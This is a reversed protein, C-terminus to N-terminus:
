GAITWEDHGEDYEVVHAGVRYRANEVIIEDVHADAVSWHDGNSQNMAAVLGDIGREATFPAVRPNRPLVPYGAGRENVADPDVAAFHLRIAHDESDAVFAGIHGIIEHNVFWTNILSDAANTTTTTM